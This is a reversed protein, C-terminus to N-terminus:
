TIFNVSLLSASLHFRPRLFELHTASGKMLGKIGKEGRKMTISNHATWFKYNGRILQHWIALLTHSTSYTIELHVEPGTM